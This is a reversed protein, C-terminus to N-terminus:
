KTDQGRRCFTTKFIRDFFSDPGTLKKVYHLTLSKLSARAKNYGMVRLQLYMLAHFLVWCVDEERGEDLADRLWQLMMTKKRTPRELQNLMLSLFRAYHQEPIGEGNFPAIVVAGWEHRHKHLIELTPNFKAVPLAWRDGIFNCTFENLAFTIEPTTFVCQARMRALPDQNSNPGFGYLPALEAAVLDVNDPKHKFITRVFKEAEAPNDTIPNFVWKPADEPTMEVAPNSM